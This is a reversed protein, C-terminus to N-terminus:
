EDEELLAIANNVEAFTAQRIKEAFWCFADVSGESPLEIGCDELTDRIFEVSVAFNSM